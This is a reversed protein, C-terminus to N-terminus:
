EKIYFERRETHQYYLVLDLLYHSNLFLYGRFVALLAGGEGGRLRANKYWKPEGQIQTGVRVGTSRTIYM